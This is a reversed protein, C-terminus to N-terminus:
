TGSCGTGTRPFRVMAQPAFHLWLNRGPNITAGCMHVPRVPCSPHRVEPRFEASSVYCAPADPRHQFFKRLDRPDRDQPAAPQTIQQKGQRCHRREDRRVGPCTDRHQPGGDVSFQQPAGQPRDTVDPHQGYHFAQPGAPFVGCRDVGEQGGHPVLLEIERNLKMAAAAVGIREEQAQPGAVGHSRPRGVSRWQLTADGVGIVLVLRKPPQLHRSQGASGRNVQFGPQPWLVPVQGLDLFEKIAEAVARCGRNHSDM